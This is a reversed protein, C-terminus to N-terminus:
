KTALIKRKVEEWPLGSEPNEAYHDLRKELLEVIQPDPNACADNGEMAQQWLESALTFKEQPTLQELEPFSAIM